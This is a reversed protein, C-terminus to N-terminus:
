IHNRRLRRNLLKGSLEPKEPPGSRIPFEGALLDPPLRSEFRQTKRSYRSRDPRANMGGIGPLKEGISLALPSACELVSDRVFSRLCVALEQPAGARRRKRHSAKKRLVLWFINYTQCFRFLPTLLHM